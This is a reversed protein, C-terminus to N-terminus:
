SRLSKRIRKTAPRQSVTSTGFPFTGVPRCTGILRCNRHLHQAFREGKGNCLFMGNCLLPQLAQGRSIEASDPTAKKM